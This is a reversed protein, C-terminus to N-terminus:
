NNPFDPMNWADRLSEGQFKRCDCSKGSFLKKAGFAARSFLNGIARLIGLGYEDVSMVPNNDFAVYPSQSHHTILDINMWRGLAADYNRAGFDYHHIIRLLSVGRHVYFKLVTM